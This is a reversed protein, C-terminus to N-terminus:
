WRREGLSVQLGLKDEVWLTRLLPVNHELTYNLSRLEPQRTFTLEESVQRRPRSHSRPRPAPSDGCGGRVGLERAGGGGASGWVQRGDVGVRLACRYSPGHSQAALQLLVRAPLGLSSPQPLNHVLSM